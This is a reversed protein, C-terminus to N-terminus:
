GKLPRGSNVQDETMNTLQGAKQGNIWARRFRRELAEELSAHNDVGEVTQINFTRCLHPAAKGGLFVVRSGVAFDGQTHSIDYCEVRSPAHDLSLLSALEIV